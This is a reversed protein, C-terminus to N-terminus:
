GYDPQRTRTQRLEDKAKKLEQYKMIVWDPNGIFYTHSINMDEDNNSVDEVMERYAEQRQQPTDGLALYSPAPTILPDEKGYAYYGYSSWENDKPHAVKGARVQNLDIYSMVRLMDKDTEIKPSKFRDM